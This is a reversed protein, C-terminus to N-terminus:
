KSLVEIIQQRYHTKLVTPFVINFHIYLDGRKRRDAKTPMGEGAVVHVLQPSITEDISLILSRQDLTKLHVPKTALADELSMNHTYHLDDGKRKFCSVPENKLRLNVRLVAQKHAYAQNGREPFELVTTEDDGPKVEITLSEEVENLTKGDRQLQKRKYEVTKLSGNYFEFISCPLQIEIDQPKSHPDYSGAVGHVETEFHNTFPSQNGFFREYIEFSNGKYSYGVQFRGDQKPGIDELGQHGHKDYRHKLDPNSLM